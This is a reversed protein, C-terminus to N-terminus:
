DYFFELLLQDIENINNVIEIKFGGYEYLMKIESKQAPSLKGNPAKLEILLHKQEGFILWDPAGRVGEFHIKRAELNYKKCSKLLAEKIKGEPTM